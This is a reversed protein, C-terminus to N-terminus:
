ATVMFIHGVPWCFRAAALFAPRFDPRSWYFHDRGLFSASLDPRPWYFHDRGLFQGISIAQFMAVCYIDILFSGDIHMHFVSILWIYTFPALLLLPRVALFLRDKGILSDASNGTCFSSPPLLRLVLTFM